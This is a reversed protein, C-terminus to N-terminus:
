LENLYSNHGSLGGEHQRSNDGNSSSRHHIQPEPSGRRSSPNQHGKKHLYLELAKKIDEAGLHKYNRLQIIQLDKYEEQKQCKNNKSGKRSSNQSSIFEEPLDQQSSMLSEKSNVIELTRVKDPIKLAGDPNKLNEM